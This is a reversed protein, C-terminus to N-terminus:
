RSFLASGTSCNEFARASNRARTQLFDRPVLVSRLFVHTLARDVSLGPSAPARTWGGADSSAGSRSCSDASHEAGVNDTLTERRWQCPHGVFDGRQVNLGRDVQELDDHVQDPASSSLAAEVQFCPKQPQLQARFRACSIWTYGGPVARANRLAIYRAHRASQLHAEQEASLECDALLFNAKLFRDATV